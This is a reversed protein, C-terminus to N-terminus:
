GTIERLLTEVKGRDSLDSPSVIIIRAAQAARRVRAFGKDCTLFHLEPSGLYVLQEVDFLDNAHKEPNYNKVAIATELKVREFEHYANFTNEVDAASRSHPDIQLRKVIGQFWANSFGDSFWDVKQGDRKSAERKSAEILRGLNQVYSLKMADM